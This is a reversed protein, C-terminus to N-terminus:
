KDEYEICVCHWVHNYGASTNYSCASYQVSSISHTKKFNEIMKSLEKENTSKMFEYKPISLAVGENRM